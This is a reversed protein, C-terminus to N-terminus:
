RGLRYLGELKDIATQCEEVSYPRPFEHGKNMDECLEEASTYEKGTDLCKEYATEFIFNINSLNKM